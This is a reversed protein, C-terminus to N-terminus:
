GEVQCLAMLHEVRHPNVREPYCLPDVIYVVRLWIRLAKVWQQEDELRKALVEYLKPLPSVSIPWVKGNSAANCIERIKSEVSELEETGNLLTDLLAQLGSLADRIPTDVIPNGTLIESQEDFGKVCRSCQCGFAYSSSLVEQRKEFSQITDIYSITIEEDKSLKRISRVVM